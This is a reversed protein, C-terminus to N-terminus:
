LLSKEVLIRDFGFPPDFQFNTFNVDLIAGDDVYVVPYIESGKVGNVAFDISKNKIYFKLEIHDYTVGIIDSEQIDENFTHLIQNETVVTGDQRLVWSQSDVGLPVSSLNANTTALGVGWIGTQQVKVEFYAKNQVIPTTTIAGGTGCIRHGRKVIVVDNGMTTTDLIVKPILQDKVLSYRTQGSMGFCRRICLLCEM